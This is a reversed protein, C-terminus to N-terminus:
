SRYTVSLSLTGYPVNSTAQELHVVPGLTVGLKTAVAQAEAQANALAQDYVSSPVPASASGQLKAIPSSNAFVNWTSVGSSELATTVKPLVTDLSALPVSVSMNGNAHVSPSNSSGGLAKAAQPFGNGLSFSTNQVVVEAGPIGLHTLASTILATTRDVVATAGAVTTSNVGFGINCNESSPASSLSANGVVTITTPPAGAASSTGAGLLVFAAAAAVAVCGAPVSWLWLRRM